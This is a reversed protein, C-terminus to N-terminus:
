GPGPEGFLSDVGPLGVRAVTADALAVVGGIIFIAQWGLEPVM